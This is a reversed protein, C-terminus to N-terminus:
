GLVENWLFADFNTKPQMWLKSSFISAIFFLTSPVGDLKIHSKEVLTGNLIPDLGINWRKYVPDLKLSSCLQVNIKEVM